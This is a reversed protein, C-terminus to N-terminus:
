LPPNGDAQLACAEGTAANRQEHATGPTGVRRSQQAAQVPQASVVAELEVNSVEVMVKTAGLRVVISGKNLPERVTKSQGAADVLM